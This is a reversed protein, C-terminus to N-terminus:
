RLYTACKLRYLWINLDRSTACELRAKSSAIENQQKRREKSSADRKAAQMLRNLQTVLRNAAHMDGNAAHM